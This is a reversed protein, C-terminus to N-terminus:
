SIAGQSERAYRAAGLLATKPNLIVQVPIRSLIPEFRGKSVFAKMFVAESKLAELIKPAIGGGIYIGGWAAFKLALNGAEGGYISIFKKLAKVCVPCTNLLAAESISKADIRDGQEEKEGLFFQYILEIGNGCLFREFSVHPFRTKFFRLMEIEEEDRPSFDVHGGESAFPIHKNGTFYMGAEGLGTGASILAQNGKKREGLNLVFLEDPQLLPIGWANAELDNILFVPTKGQFIGRHLSPGDVVWSLNTAHCRNDQIPGAIGFCVREINRVQEPSLFEDIIADLSPFEQSRFSKEQLFNRTEGRALLALNTKTGGIDGALIM